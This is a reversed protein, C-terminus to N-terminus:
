IMTKAAMKPGMFLGLYYGLKTPDERIDAPINKFFMAFAAATALAYPVAKGEPAQDAVEAITLPIIAYIYAPAEIFAAEALWTLMAAPYAAVAPLKDAYFANLQQVRSQTGEIVKGVSEQWEKITVTAPVQYRLLVAAKQVDNLGDFKKFGALKAWYDQ